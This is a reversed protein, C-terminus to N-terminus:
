KVAGFEPSILFLSKDKFLSLSFCDCINSNCWQHNRECSGQQNACFAITRRKVITENAHDRKANRRPEKRADIIQLSREQCYANVPVKGPLQLRRPGQSVFTIPPFQRECKISPPSRGQCHYSALVKGSLQLLRPGQMAIIFLM